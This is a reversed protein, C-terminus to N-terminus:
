MEKKITGYGIAVVEGLSITEEELIISINSKGAVPFEQSKM